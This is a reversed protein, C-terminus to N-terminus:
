VSEDSVETTESLALTRGTQILVQIVKQQQALTLFQWVQAPLVVSPGNKRSSKSETPQAGDRSTLSVVSAM